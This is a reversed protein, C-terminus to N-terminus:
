GDARLLLYIARRAVYQNAFDGRGLRALATMSPSATGASVNGLSAHLSIPVRFPVRRGIVTRSQPYPVRYVIQRAVASVRVVHSLGACLPVSALANRSRWGLRM